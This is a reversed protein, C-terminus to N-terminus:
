KEHSLGIRILERAIKDAADPRAFAKAGISMNKLIGPNGFLRNIESVLLHTSFNEEEIVLAGGSKAYAFANSKQDHSISEPIPVIISPIGWIAIEFITSGARSIILKAAGAGMRMALDNVYPLPKYRNKYTNDKLISEATARVEEFKEKGTQHIIQYSALLDPLADLIVDNIASAGQSGGLIMIVPLTPSFQWYEFVGATTPTVIEARVPNGTYAVKEQDFFEGAEPYSVAIRKAFKGAWKNVRGPSSDSEHIMVPIGLLRGAFLAPFSTYGGKGFIVDPFIRFIIITAKLVGFATKFLDFFNLLSFYRRVKGAPSQVFTIQNDLLARENYPANSMFYLSAELLKEDKAIKNLAEAVAIIPYFHGGTGGGTFLIKM